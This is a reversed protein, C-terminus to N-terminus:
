EKKMATLMASTQNYGVKEGKAYKENRFALGKNYVLRSCGLTKNILEQQVKNPYARFIVGKNM